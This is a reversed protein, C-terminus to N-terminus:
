SFEPLVVQVKSLVQTQTYLYIMGLDRISGICGGHGFGAATREIGSM